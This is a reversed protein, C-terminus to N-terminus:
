AGAAELARVMDRKLVNGNAGHGEITEMEIGAEELKAELEEVTFDSLKRDAAKRKEAAEPAALPRGNADHPTGDAGIYYGGKRKAEAM